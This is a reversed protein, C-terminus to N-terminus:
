KTATNIEELRLWSFLNQLREIVKEEVRKTPQPFNQPSASIDTARSSEESNQWCLSVDEDGEAM